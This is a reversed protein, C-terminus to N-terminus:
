LTDMVCFKPITITGDSRIVHYVGGVFNHDIGAVKNAFRTKLQWSPTIIGHMMGYQRNKNYVYTNYTPVHTHSSVIVDAHRRGHKLADFYEDMLWIRFANGEKAGKGAAKGHHVFDTRVGNTELRLVDYCSFDGDPQANTERGIYEEMEHTHSQTGRTYYLLDGRQWGIRKKLEEMLEIHIDAQELENTTCVDGSNHHDGDIADGNHVLVVRMGKRAAKVEDAFKEFHNRIKIQNSRPVHSTNRGHWHRSLFLAYNSGSHMDSVIVHMTDTNKM